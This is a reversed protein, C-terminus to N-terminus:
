LLPGHPVGSRHRVPRGVSVAALFQFPRRAPGADFARGARVGPLAAPFLPM